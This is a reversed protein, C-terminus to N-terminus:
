DAGVRQHWHSVKPSIVVAKCARLLPEIVRAQADYAKDAIVTCAQTDKLMVDDGELYHAQGPTLHFGTPNGLAHVTAHIKTTM